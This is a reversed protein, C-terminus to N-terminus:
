PRPIRRRRRPTSGKRPVRGRASSTASSTSSAAPSATPPRAPGPLARVKDAWAGLEYRLFWFAYWFPAVVLTSATAADGLETAWGVAARLNDWETDFVSAGRIYAEGHLLRRADEV